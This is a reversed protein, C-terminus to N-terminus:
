ITDGNFISNKVVVYDVKQLAELDNGGAYSISSQLDQQMEVLTDKLSGKYPIWIKKGEV